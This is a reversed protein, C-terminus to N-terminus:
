QITIKKTVLDNGSLIKLYYLGKALDKTLIKEQIRNNTPQIKRSEIIQGTGTMFKLIVDSSFVGEIDIYFQDLAPSPYTSILLPNKVPNNTSVRRGIVFDIAASGGFDPGITYVPITSTGIKRAVRAYGTGQSPNAWFRLGDHNRDTVEVSYCGDPLDLDETFETNAPLNQRDFLINGSADLIRYGNTAFTNNTKLEFQLNWKFVRTLEFPTSKRNNKAYEDEQDNVKKIEAYFTQAGSTWFNFDTVNLEIDRSRLFDINGQWQFSEEWGGDTGYIIELNTIPDTGNNKVRIIPRSCAPNFRAFEVRESNPRVIAEITADRGFNAPGYSVLQSSVLYNAETMLAGNIGYNLTIEGGKETVNNLNFRHVDSAMGPCWGARDYIWTGGQPYIPNFGCEKYVTFNTKSSKSGDAQLYHSRSQFEGNQQHGTITTRYDYYEAGPHLKIKRPEFLRDNLIDPMYGRRFGWVNSIDLVERTPTGKYFLFKIDLEEQNQGGLEISMRKKNRLIPAYDTLDFVFTKGERGLSLGNGYPTVLSLIEFKAPRLAHYSLENFEIEGDYQLEVLDLQEGLPTYIFQLGGAYVDLYDAIVVDNKEVQYRPVHLLANPVSDLVETTEVNVGNYSGTIFQVVPRANATKFDNILNAGRESVYGSPFDLQQNEPNPAMDTVTTGSGADLPFYYLLNSRDPHGPDGPNGLYNNIVTADLSKNWIAIDSIRGYYCFHRTPFRFFYSQSLSMRRTKDTAKLIEKGNLYITMEGTNANKTFAWHNWRAKYDLQDVKLNIRDIGTGDRGCDWYVNENSWPLHINLAREGKENFCEILSTNRPQKEPTGFAWFAITVEDSLQAMKGGDIVFGNPGDLHLTQREEDVYLCLDGKDVDATLGIPSSSALPNHSIDIEIDTTGDWIFDDYFDFRHPGAQDIRTDLFYHETWDSQIIRDAHLANPSHRMRIRFFPLDGIAEKFNLEIASIKGPTQGAAVLEAATFHM